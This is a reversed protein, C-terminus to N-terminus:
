YELKMTSSGNLTIAGVFPTAPVFNSTVSIAITTDPDAKTTGNCSPQAPDFTIVINSIPTAVARQYVASEIASYDCPHVIGYRAGERAASYLVSNYYVARGLDLVGMILLLLVPLVLAWEVLTQGQNKIHLAKM